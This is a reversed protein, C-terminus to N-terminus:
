RHTTFVGGPRARVNVPRSHTEEVSRQSRPNPLSTRIIALILVQRSQVRPDTPSARSLLVGIFTSLAWLELCWMPSSIRRANDLVSSVGRSLGEHHWAGHFVRGIVDGLFTTRKFQGIPEPFLKSIGSNDSLPHSFTLPPCVLEESVFKHKAIGSSSSRPLPQELKPSTRAPVWGGISRGTHRSLALWPSAAAAWYVYQSHGINTLNIRSILTGIVSPRRETGDAAVDFSKRRVPSTQVDNDANAKLLYLDEQMSKRQKALTPTSPQITVIPVSLTSMMPSPPKSLDTDDRGRQRHQHDSIRRKLIAEPMSFRKKKSYGSYFRQALGAPVAGTEGVPEPLDDAGKSARRPM